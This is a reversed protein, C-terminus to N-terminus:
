GTRTAVMGRSPSGVPAQPCAHPLLDSTRQCTLAVVAAGSPSRTMTLFDGFTGRLNTGGEAVGAAVTGVPLMSPSTTHALHIERFKVSWLGEELRYWAVELVGEGAASAAASFAEDEAATDIAFPGRVAGTDATVVAYQVTDLGWTIYVNGAADMASMPHVAEGMTIEKPHIQWTSSTPSSAVALRLRVINGESKDAIPIITTGDARIQPMGAIWDVNPTVESIENWAGGGPANPDFRLWRVGTFQGGVFRTYVLYAAGDHSAFWPREADPITPHATWTSGSTPRSSLNLAPGSAGASLAGWHVRGDSASFVTADGGAGPTPNGMWAFPAPPARQWLHAVDNGSAPPPGDMAAVLVAGDPTTTVVPEYAGRSADEDVLVVEFSYPFDASVPSAGIALATVM